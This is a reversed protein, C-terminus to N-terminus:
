TNQLGSFIEKALFGGQRAEVGGEKNRIFGRMWKGLLVLRILINASLSMMRKKKKNFGVRPKIRNECIFNALVEQM